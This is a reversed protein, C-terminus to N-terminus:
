QLPLQDEYVTTVDRSTVTFVANAPGSDEKGLQQAM